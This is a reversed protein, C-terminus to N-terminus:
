KTMGKSYEDVDATLYGAKQFVSPHLIRKWRKNLVLYFRTGCPSM